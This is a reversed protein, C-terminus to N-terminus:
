NINQAINLLENAAEICKIKQKKLKNEEEKKWDKYKLKNGNGLTIKKEDGIPNEAQNHLQFICNQARFFNIEYKKLLVKVYESSFINKLNEVSLAEIDDKEM